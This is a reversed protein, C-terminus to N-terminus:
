YAGRGRWVAGVTRALLALDLGLSWHRIYHTDHTQLTRLDGDARASIQWLGTLGPLVRRRLSRFRDPFQALHYHPLPRPGVLSMEGRLVNWFQPVEDLSTRRLFRGVGPLVRPDDRLKFCRAWERRAEPHARLHAELQTDADRYMTRLKWVRIRRGGLGRREQWFLAPGRDVRKIWLVLVALLPLSALLLTGGLACDITRKIWWDRRRLRDRPSAIGLTRGTAVTPLTTQM